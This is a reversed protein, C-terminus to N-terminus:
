GRRVNRGHFVTLGYQRGSCHALSGCPVGMTTRTVSHPFLSHRGTIPRIPISVDDWAFAPLSGRPTEDCSRKSFWRVPPFCIFTSGSSMHVKQSSTFITLNPPQLGTSHLRYLQFDVAACRGSVCNNFQTGCPAKTSAQATHHSVIVCPESPPIACYHATEVRNCAAL